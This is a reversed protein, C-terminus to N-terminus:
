HSSCPNKTPYTGSIMPMTSKHSPFQFFTPNMPFFHGRDSQHIGFRGIKHHHISNIPEYNWPITSTYGIQYILGTDSHM